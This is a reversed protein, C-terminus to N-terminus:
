EAFCINVNSNMVPAFTCNCLLLLIIKHIPTAVYSSSYELTVTNSSKFFVSISISMEM